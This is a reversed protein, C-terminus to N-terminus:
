HQERSVCHPVISVSAKVELAVEIAVEIVPRSRPGTKIALLVTATITVLCHGSSKTAGECSFAV